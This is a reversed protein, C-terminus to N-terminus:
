RESHRLKEGARIPIKLRNEPPPYPCDYSSNFYCYPHYAKNFDIIYIGTANRDLDLYRGAAYTETGTTLDTFPVFLHDLNESGVEVFATLRLPQGKLTFELTGVRQMKRTQGTSTPMEMVDNKDTPKLVAPVAYDPDIPFYALPLLEDRRNPPIPSDSSNRFAADKEARAGAIGAVYTRDEPPRGSCAGALAVAGALALVALGGRSSSTGVALSLRM